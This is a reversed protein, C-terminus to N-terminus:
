ARRRAQWSAHRQRRATRQQAPSPTMLDALTQWIPSEIINRIAEALAEVLAEVLQQMARNLNEFDLTIGVLKPDLDADGLLFTRCGLCLDGAADLPTRQCRACREPSHDTTYGREYSSQLGADIADITQTVRDTM